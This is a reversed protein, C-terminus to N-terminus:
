GLCAFELNITRGELFDLGEEQGVWKGRCSWSPPHCGSVQRLNRTVRIDHWTNDNFKGNVPEVLAEFAGSGLNIVLWVAGSKLSLNVYDASKGTHLMLGNRQLTRFSLTIEDTSSQIPNHSLDYCFFENGKFTAVFEEKGASSPSFPSPLRFFTLVSALLISRTNTHVPCGLETMRHTLPCLPGHSSLLTGAQCM